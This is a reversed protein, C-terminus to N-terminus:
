KVAFAYRGTVKHTDSSVVRWGVIYRGRALRAKPTVVLMKGDAAVATASAMKKASMGPMAAMTLDAKAFAPMLKESFRLDIHAPAAVTANAAPTVSLLKPHANAIGAISLLAVATLLPKHQMAIDKSQIDRDRRYAALRSVGQDCILTIPPTRTVLDAPAPTLFISLSSLANICSAEVGAGAPRSAISSPTNAPRAALGTYPTRRPTPAAVTAAASTKPIAPAVNGDRSASTVESVGSAETDGSDGAANSSPPPRHAARSRTTAPQCKAHAGAEKRGDAAHEDPANQKGRRDRRAGFEMIYEVVLQGEVGPLLGPQLQEFLSERDLVAREFEFEPRIVRSQGFCHLGFMAVSRADSCRDVAAMGHKAFQLLRREGVNEGHPLQESGVLRCREVFRDHLRQGVVAM